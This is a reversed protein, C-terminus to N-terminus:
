VGERSIQGKKLIQQHGNIVLMAKDTFLAMVKIKHSAYASSVSMLLLIFLLIIKKVDM